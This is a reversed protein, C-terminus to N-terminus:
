ENFIPKNFASVVKLGFRDALECRPITRISRNTLLHTAHRIIEAETGGVQVVIDGKGTYSDGLISEIKSISENEHDDQPIYIM